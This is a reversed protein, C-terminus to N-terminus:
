PVPPMPGSELGIIRQLMKIVRVIKAQLDDRDRTTADAIPTVSISLLLTLVVASVGRVYVKM